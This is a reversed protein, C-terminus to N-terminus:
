RSKSSECFNTTRNMLAAVTVSRDFQFIAGYSDRSQNFYKAHSGHSEKHDKLVMECKPM